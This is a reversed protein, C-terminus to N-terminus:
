KVAVQYSIESDIAAEGEVASRWAVALEVSPMLEGSSDSLTDIDVAGSVFDM